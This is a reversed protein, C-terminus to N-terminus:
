RRLTARQIGSSPPSFAPGLSSRQPAGGDEGGRDLPRRAAALFALLGCAAVASWAIVGLPGAAGGSLLLTLTWALDIPGLDLGLGYAVALLLVPLAGLVALALCAWRAVRVEPVAALMWLHAPLVLLLATYPNIACVVAALLSITVALAAAAGPSGAQASRPAGLMRAVLPRALLAGVVLLAVGALATGEPPLADPDVPGPPAPLADALGLVRLVLAVLAFCLTTALIWRLWPLIPDHRRRVRAMGDVAALLAPLLLAAVLLAVAWAPLVRRQVVLYERPGAPVDPGNDLASISRLAARGFAQLRGRSVAAGAEPGREGSAQLTVAAIGEAGLAGQPTLTLPAALRPLQALMRPLSPAIGTELRVADEVTRRLRLPAIGGRGSWPIVVPPRTTRGAVDGLVIAADVGDRSGALERALERLAAHGGTGGSTSVLTLTRRTARGEFLRGLELLAATGSLEAAAGRGPADRSAVVLIRRGDRGPREAVVTQISKEGDVTEHRESRVEVSGAAVGEDGAGGTRVFTGQLADRVHLALAADGEEGPRRQPFRRALSSLEAFARQGTFADPALTTRIPRPREGLAFAVVMVAVIVPLFAARYVRGDLM